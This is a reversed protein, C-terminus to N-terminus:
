CGETVNGYWVNYRRCECLMWLFGFWTRVVVLGSGCLKIRGSVLVIDNDNVNSKQCSMGM